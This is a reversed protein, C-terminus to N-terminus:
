RKILGANDWLMGKEKYRQWNEKSIGPWGLYEEKQMVIMQTRNGKESREKFGRQISSPEVEITMFVVCVKKEKELVHGPKKLAKM